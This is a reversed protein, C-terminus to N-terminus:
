AGESLSLKKISVKNIVQNSPSNLNNSIHFIDSLQLNTSLL